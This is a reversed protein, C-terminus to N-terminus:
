MAPSNIIHTYPPPFATRGGNGRANPFRSLHSHIDGSPFPCLQELRVMATNKVGLERCHSDLLYYHKGSCLVVRAVSCLPVCLVLPHTLALLCQTFVLGM